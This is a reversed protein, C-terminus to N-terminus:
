SKESADDNRDYISIQFFRFRYNLAGNNRHRSRYVYTRCGVLCDNDGRGEEVDGSTYVLILGLLLVLLVGVCSCTSCTLPQNEITGGRGKGVPGEVGGMM